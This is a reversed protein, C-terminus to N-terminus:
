ALLRDGCQLSWGPAAGRERVLIPRATSALWPVARRLPGSPGSDELKTPPPLALERKAKPAPEVIPLWELGTHLPGQHDKPWTYATIVSPDFLEDCVMDHQNGGRGVIRGDKTRGVVLFVHGGGSRAHIRDEAEVLERTGGFGAMMPM